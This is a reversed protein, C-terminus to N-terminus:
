VVAIRQVIFLGTAPDYPMKNELMQAPIKRYRFGYSKLLTFFKPKVFARTVGMIFVSEQHSMRLM